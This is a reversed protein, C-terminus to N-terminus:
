AVEGRILTFTRKLEAREAEREEELILPDLFEDLKDTAEKLRDVASLLKRLEEKERESIEESIPLFWRSLLKILHSIEAFLALGWARTMHGSRIEQEIKDALFIIHLAWPELYQVRREEELVGNLTLQPSPPAEALPSKTLEEVPVGLADAIKGLTAPYPERVGRELESITGPNVGAKEALQRVTIRQRAREMRLRDADM